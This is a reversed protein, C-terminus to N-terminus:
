AEADTLDSKKGEVLSTTIFDVFRASYMQPPVCSMDTNGRTARKYYYEAM